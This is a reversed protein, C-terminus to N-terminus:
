SPLYGRLVPLLERAFDEESRAEDEPDDPNPVSILVLAGNSRGWFLGNFTMALKARYRDAIVRGDVDYWFLIRDPGRERSFTGRNVWIGRGGEAQIEVRDAKQHLLATRYDAIKPGKEQSGLYAVYLEFPRGKPDRYVRFLEHDAGEIRFLAQRPDVTEGRWVGISIPFTAFDEKLAVPPRKDNQPYVAFVALFLIAIWWSRNWEGFGAIPVGTPDQTAGPRLPAKGGIAKELKSLGWAGIFLGAFGVWAVSMGQFIHLPGHLVEHGSSAWVGIVAVRLWNATIGIIVAALILVVRSWWARLTLYALPLGIAVISVLYATGSCVNAVELTTHPLVIYQQELLASYGLGQLLAVAMKATLLQFPWQLPSTVLDLVPVMFFLYLIPFALARVFATGLLLFVLGAIMLILSIGSLTVVGGAQGLWLLMGAVLSVLSGLVVNPTVPLKQLVDRKRWVLYLSIVPILFGHSYDDRSWWIEVLSAAVRAYLVLFVASLLGIQVIWKKHRLRESREASKEVEVAQLRASM